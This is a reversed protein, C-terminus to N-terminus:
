PRNGKNGKHGKQKEGDEPIPNTYDIKLANAVAEMIGNSSYTAGSVSDVEAKQEKLIGSVVKSYAKDYYEMDEQHSLVNIESINGNKVVVSVHIDGKFGSGTGEYTGDTYAGKTEPVQFSDSSGFLEKALMPGGFSLGLILVVALPYIIIGRIKTHANGKPCCDVCVNCNICEGTTVQDYNGLSIGMPCKQSCFSCGKCQERPKKVKLLRLCSVFGLFAGMPCLYRCFFREVFLSAVMTVFLLAGGVSLLYSASPLNGISSYMGFITWPSNMSDYSFVAFVWVGLFLVVLIIYKIWKLVQDVKPPMKKYKKHIKRALFWLLDEMAGFSCLFGCFVRGFFLACLIMVVVLILQTMLDQIQFNGLRIAIVLDRLGFFASTFLGPMLLFGVIQTFRRFIRLFKKEM